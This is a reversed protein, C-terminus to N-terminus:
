GYQKKKLEIKLKSREVGELISKIVFLKGYKIVAENIDKCTESWIPFSVNWGYEIADDVLTKGAWRQKGKWEVTDFDPVVIVEKGLSDIVDAQTESINAGLVAVGDVAMADFPGECVIVFKSDRHQMDTNFVFNSEYSSHFKPKVSPDLTRATYGILKHKWYFPIVLRKHLNYAKEETLYFEYKSLDVSRSAVYEAASLLRPDGSDIMSSFSMANKPLPRPKFDIEEKEEEVVEVEGVLDKVRLAEIVLHKVEKEDAGMWSLLKRFKYTLHRGPQYSAKFGCNFCHYSVSGDPNSHIGGRGRLDPTEGNHTCCVANFSIWGGTSNRRKGPILSILSDQITTFM